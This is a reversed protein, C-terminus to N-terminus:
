GLLEQLKVCSMPLSPITLKRRKLTPNIKTFSIKSMDNMREAPKWTGDNRRDPTQGPSGRPILDEGLWRRAGNETAPSRYAVVKQKLPCSAPLWLPWCAVDM